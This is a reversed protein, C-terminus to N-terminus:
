FQLLLKRLDNTQRLRITEHEEIRSLVKQHKALGDEPDSVEEVADTETAEALTSRLCSTLLLCDGRQYAIAHYDQAERRWKRIGTVTRTASLLISWKCLSLCRFYRTNKPFDLEIYLRARPKISILPRSTLRAVPRAAAITQLHNQLLSHWQLKPWAEIAPNVAQINLSLLNSLKLNILDVIVNMDKASLCERGYSITLNRYLTRTTSSLKNLYTHFLTPDKYTRPTHGSTYELQAHMYMTPTAELYLLKTTCALSWLDNYDIHSASSRLPTAPQEDTIHKRKTLLHEATRSWSPERLGDVTCVLRSGDRIPDVLLLDYISQRIKWDFEDRVWAFRLLWRNWASGM